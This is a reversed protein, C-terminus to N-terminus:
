IAEDIHAINIISQKISRCEKYDKYVTCERCDMNGCKNNKHNFSWCPNSHSVFADCAKRDDASCKVIHWCPIMSYLSKIGNISIKCENIAVRIGRLRDIDAQSYLRHSSEKKYPVILGEREYMRLTHVSVELLKAAVSISYLPQNYNENTEVDDRFMMLQYKYIDVEKGNL